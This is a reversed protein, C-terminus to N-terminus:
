TRGRWPRGEAQAEAPVAAVQVLEAAAAASSAPESAAAAAVAPPDPVAAAALLEPGAAALASSPCRWDIARNFFSCASALALLNVM